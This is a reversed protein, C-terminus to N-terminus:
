RDPEPLDVPPRAFPDELARAVDLADDLLAEAAVINSEAGSNESARGEDIGDAVRGRRRDYVPAAAANRGDLWGRADSALAAWRQGGTAESRRALSCICWAVDYRPTSAVACGG